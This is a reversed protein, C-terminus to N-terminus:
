LVSAAFVEPPLTALDAADVYPPEDVRSVRVLGTELVYDDAGGQDELHVELATVAHLIKEVWTAAEGGDVEVTEGGALTFSARAAGRLVVRTPEDGSSILVFGPLGRLGSTILADLLENFDSGADALEWLAAVRAKESPPLLVSAHRGFIGFWGGSRYSRVTRLDETM